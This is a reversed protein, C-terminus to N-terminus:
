VCQMDAEYMQREMVAFIDLSNVKLSTDSCVELTRVTASRM